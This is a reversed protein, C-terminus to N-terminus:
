KRKGKQQIIKHLLLWLCIGTCVGGMDIWVDIVSSGRGPRFYQITEDINAAIFGALLPMTVRHIGPAGIRCFFWSLCFGLAAFESLHGLKRLVVERMPALFPFTERLWNLLGGSIKGSEAGSLLSNGWIFCLLLVVATLACKLYANKKKM